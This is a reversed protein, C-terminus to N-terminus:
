NNIQQKQIQYQEVNGYNAEVEAACMGIIENVYIDLLDPDIDTSQSGDFKIYGKLDIDKPERYYTLFQTDIDFDTKFVLLENQSINIQTEEYEFSPNHNDDQELVNRNRVKFDWNILKRDKCEGKSAVSYSTEYEFYDDPLKFRAFSKTDEIKTLPTDYILLTSIENQEHNNSDEKLEKELWIKSQENFILVFTGKNININTNTDNKNIKLLFRKYAELGKM